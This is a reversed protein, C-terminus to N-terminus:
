LVGCARLVTKYVELEYDPTYPNEKEGRVFSAFGAMMGDYRNFIPTKFHQGENNWAKETYETKETYHIFNVIGSYRKKSFLEQLYEETAISQHFTLRPHHSVKEEPCVVEVAAGLQLLEEAVKTGLTGGGAILLVCKDQYM